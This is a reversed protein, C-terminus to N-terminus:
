EDVTTKPLGKPITSIKRNCITVALEQGLDRKIQFLRLAFEVM